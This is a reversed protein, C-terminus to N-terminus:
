KRKKKISSSIKKIDKNTFGAGRRESIRHHSYYLLEHSETDILMQHSWSGKKPESPAVMVSVLTDYHGSHFAGDVSDSDLVLMDGGSTRVQTDPALDEQAFYIKKGGAKRLENRYVDLGLYADRDSQLAKGVFDQMIDLFASLYVMERGNPYLASCVPISLINLPRKGQDEASSNGGKFLSLTVLGDFKGGVPREMMLFYTQPDQKLANFENVSCFEFPSIRWRATVEAKLCSDEMDNGCFVVKTTRSSFDSIRVKKTSLKVQAGLTAPVLVALAILSILTLAIRKMAIIVIRCLYRM